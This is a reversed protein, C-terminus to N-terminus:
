GYGFFSHLAVGTIIGPLALPLVFLFNVADRGFFATRRIAFAACSGLVLALATTTLAVEVSLRLASVVEADNITVTIWTLTLGEIPWAEIKSANFAYLFIIAMPIFLFLLVLAVWLRLAIRSWRDTM